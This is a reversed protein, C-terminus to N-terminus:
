VAGQCKPRNAECVLFPLGAHLVLDPLTDELPGKAGSFFGSFTNAEQTCRFPEVALAGRGGTSGNRDLGYLFVIVIM